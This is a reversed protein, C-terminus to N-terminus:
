YYYRRRRCHQYSFVLVINIIIFGISLYPILKKNKTKKTKQKKHRLDLLARLAWGLVRDLSPDQFSNPCCM